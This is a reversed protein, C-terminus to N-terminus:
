LRGFGFIENKRHFTRYIDMKLHDIDDYEDLRKVIDAIRNYVIRAEVMKEVTGLHMILKKGDFVRYYKKGNVISQALYM